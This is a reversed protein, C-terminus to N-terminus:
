NAAKIRKVLLKNSTQIRRLDEEWLPTEDDWSYGRRPNSIEQVRGTTFGLSWIFRLEEVTMMVRKRIRAELKKRAKKDM